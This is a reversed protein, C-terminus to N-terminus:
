KKVEGELQVIFVLLDRKNIVWDNEGYYNKENCLRRLEQAVWRCVFDRNMELCQECNDFNCGTGKAIQEPTPLTM